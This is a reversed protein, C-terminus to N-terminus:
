FPAEQSLVADTPYTISCEKISWQSLLLLPRTWQAVEIGISFPEYLEDWTSLMWTGVQAELIHLDMEKLTDLLDEVELRTKEKAIFSSLDFSTKDIDFVKSNLKELVELATMSLEVGPLSHFIPTADRTKVFEQDMSAHTPMHFHPAIFLRNSVTTFGGATLPKALTQTEVRQIPYLEDVKLEPEDRFCMEKNWLLHEENWVVQKNFHNFFDPHIVSSLTNVGYRHEEPLYPFLNEFQNVRLETSFTSNSEEDIQLDSISCKLSASLKNASFVTIPEGALAATITRRDLKNNGVLPSALHKSEFGLSALREEIVKPDLRIKSHRNM